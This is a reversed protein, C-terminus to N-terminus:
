GADPVTETRERALRRLERRDTCPVKRYIHTLHTAVTKVSLMLKEAIEPNSLGTAVLNAVELEVRTLSDWGFTPRGKAGRGRTAYAVAEAPSLTSGQTVATAWEGEEILAAVTPLHRLLAAEEVRPRRCGCTERAKQAAGFLRAAVASRGNAAALEALTELTSVIGIVDGIREQLQLAEHALKSARWADGETGALRALLACLQGRAQIDGNATALNLAEEALSRVDQDDGSALAIDALGQLSRLRHYPMHAAGPADLSAQFLRRAEELNGVAAELRGLFQLCRAHWLPVGSDVARQTAEDILPRARAYDGRVRSIEGLWSAATCSGDDYEIRRAMALAETFAAEAARLDGTQVAVRGIGDLADVIVEEDVEDRPLELCEQFCRRARVADSVFFYAVGGNVLARSLRDADGGARLSALDTELNAVSHSADAAIHFISTCVCGTAEHENGADRFLIVSQEVLPIGTAVDGQLWRFIGTTRLARARLELDGGTDHDLAWTLWEVGEALHGRAEWFWSLANGLSLAIDAREHDRAWALASRFNAHNDELADLWQEPERGGRERAAEQARETCWLAHAEAITDHAGDADLQELAFCRTSELMHYRTSPQGGDVVVLTQAVLAAVLNLVHSANVGGGACVDMAAHLDWGGAFVGLRAFLTAEDTDLLRHSWELSSRLSRHQMPTVSGTDTLLAFRDVSLQERIERPSLVASRAAALEVALPLGDLARCIGEVEALADIPIQYAPRAASAREAFLQAAESTGAGTQDTDVGSLLSLPEVWAIYEGAVGLAQRSTTLVSVNPCRCLVDNAFVACSTRIRECGDLVMLLRRDVLEDILNRRRRGAGRSQIAGAVAESIAEGDRLASVDVFWVGDVFTAMAAEAARLALRTKGVGGTGLLTVLREDTLAAVVQAVERERAIFSSGHAPLNHPPAVPLPLASALPRRTPLESGPM